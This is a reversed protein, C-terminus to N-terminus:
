LLVVILCVWGDPYAAERMLEELPARFPVSGGHMIVNALVPDRSSPFLSPLNEKLVEGLTQPKRNANRPPILTQVVKFSGHDGGSTQLPSSPIYIRVPVNRLPTPTNLLRSNIRSFSAYDNDQVSNWLATSDDKSLGMIQKANGNRVFDAEKASNTFTDAIDWEPGDGVTLRWPLSGASDPPLYLDVLLGVALNRLQVDEYHFSSCPLPSFYASLRPLLLALYSFRPVSVVFPNTSPQSTHTIYLPIQLSWLAQPLPPPPIDVDDHNPANAGRCGPRHSLSSPSVPSSPPPSSPMTWHLATRSQPAPGPSIVAASPGLVPGARHRRPQRHRTGLLSSFRSGNSGSRSQQPHGPVIIHTAVPHGTSRYDASSSSSSRPLYCPWAIHPSPYSPLVAHTQHLALQTDRKSVVPRSQQLFARATTTPQHTPSPVHM